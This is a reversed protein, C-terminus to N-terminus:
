KCISTTQYNNLSKLEVDKFKGDELKCQFNIGSNQPSVKVKWKSIKLLKMVQGTIEPIGCGSSRISVINGKKSFFIQIDLFFFGKQKSISDPINIANLRQCFDGNIISPMVIKKPNEVITIHTRELSDDNQAKTEKFVFFCLCTIIIIKM